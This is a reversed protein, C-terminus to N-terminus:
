LVTRAHDHPGAPLISAYRTQGWEPEIQPANALRAAYERVIYAVVREIGYQGVDGGRVIQPVKIHQAM